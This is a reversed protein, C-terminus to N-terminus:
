GNKGGRWLVCLRKVAWVLFMGLGMVLLTGVISGTATLFTITSVRCGFPVARLEWRERWGLPCIDAAHLPALIPFRTPNPVCTSSIACWSCPLDGRLCLDCSQLRWCAFFLADSASASASVDTPSSTNTDM